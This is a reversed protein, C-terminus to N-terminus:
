RFTVDDRAQDLRATGGRGSDSPRVEAALRHPPSASCVAASGDTRAAGPESGQGDRPKRKKLSVWM